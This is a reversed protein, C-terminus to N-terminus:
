YEDQNLLAWTLWQKFSSYVEEPLNDNDEVLTGQVYFGDPGIKLMEKQGSYFVINQEPTMVLIPNSSETQRFQYQM